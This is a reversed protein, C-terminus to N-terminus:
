PCDECPPCTPCSKDPCPVCKIKKNKVTKAGNPTAKVAKSHTTRAKSKAKTPGAADSHTTGTLVFASLALLTFMTKM